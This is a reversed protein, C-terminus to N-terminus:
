NQQYPNQPAKAGAELLGNKAQEYLKKPYDEIKIIYPKADEPATSLMGDMVERHKLTALTLRGLFATTDMGEKHAIRETSQASELYKEAKTLVSIGLDARDNTFMVEADALRKDALLLYLDAKKAPDVTLTLWVKDRMAKIPWFISDSLVSGPYPLNYAISVSKTTSPTPTPAQSFVYKVEAIRFVSVVLIFAALTFATM